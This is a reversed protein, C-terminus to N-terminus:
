VEPKGCKELCERQSYRQLVKFQGAVLVSLCPSGRHAERGYQLRERGITVHYLLSNQNTLSMVNVSSYFELGSHRENVSVFASTINVSQRLVCHLVVCFLALVLTMNHVRKFVAISTNLSQEHLNSGALSLPMVISNCIDIHTFFHINSLLSLMDGM